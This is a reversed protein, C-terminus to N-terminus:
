ATPDTINITLTAGTDDGGGATVTVAYQEASKGAVKVNSPAGNTFIIDSEADAFGSVDFSLSHEGVTEAANSNVLAILDAFDVSSNALLRTDNGGSGTEDFGFVLEVDNQLLSVYGSGYAPTSYQDTSTPFLGSGDTNLDGNSDKVAVEDYGGVDVLVDAFNESGGLETNTIVNVNVTRDASVTTFAGSGLIGGGALALGGM